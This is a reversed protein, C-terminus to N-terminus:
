IRKIPLRIITKWKEPSTKRPDSLYIEHHQRQESFDSKCGQEKLFQYMLAISEPETEYPGIHMIQVCLGEEISLFEAPSCDIKKKKEATKVAWEFNEKTVFDPLRIVSIWQFDKKSKENEELPSEWSWFGELPPVVYQFFGDIHYNSKYSMKLTYSVAYLIGMAKQYEGGKENPDGKGRVAVFDAKPVDVIQPKRKPAYLEKYKKKFDFPM